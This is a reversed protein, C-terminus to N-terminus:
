DAWDVLVEFSGAELVKSSTVEIAFTTTQGPTLLIEADTGGRPGGDNEALVDCSPDMLYLFTDM